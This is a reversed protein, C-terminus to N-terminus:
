ISKIPNYLYEGSEIFGKLGNLIKQHKESSWNNIWYQYMEPTFQGYYGGLDDIVKDYDKFLWNQSHFLKHMYYYRYVDTKNINHDLEKLNMLINEYEEIDDDSTEFFHTYIDEFFRVLEDGSENQNNRYKNILFILKAELERDSPNTLDLVDLLEKDSYSTVDYMNTKQIEKNNNTNMM